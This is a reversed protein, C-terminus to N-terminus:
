AITRGAVADDNDNVLVVAFPDAEVHRLERCELVGNTTELLPAHDKPNYLQPRYDRDKFHDAGDLVYSYAHDQDAVNMRHKMELYPMLCSVYAM